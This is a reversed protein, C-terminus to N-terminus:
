IEVRCYMYYNCSKLLMLLLRCNIIYYSCLLLNFQKPIVIFLSVDFKIYVRKLYVATFLDIMCLVEHSGCSYLLAANVHTCSLSLVYRFACSPFYLSLLVILCIACSFPYFLVTVRDSLDFPFLACFGCLLFSCLVFPAPKVYTPLSVLNV